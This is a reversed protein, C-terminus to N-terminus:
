SENSPQAHRRRIETVIDDVSLQEFLQEREATYYGYGTSFQNLFRVTNVLGMEHCLLRLATATVEQLPVVANAIM